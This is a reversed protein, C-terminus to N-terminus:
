DTERINGRALSAFIGVFCLATFIMFTIQASKLLADYYAPTIEVQGIFINFMLMAIGMSLMIGIQRSTALVASAVGYWQKSSSSMIANTNPSVFIGFGSGLILLAIFLYLISTQQGIFILLGLGVTTIAMGMSALKRPEIRDSLRGAIPSFLFQMAPSAVLILGAIGPSLGKNYQLYLSLLFTVAYTAAYSIFSAVNSFVFAQNNKFMSLRLLPIQVHNEWAVFIFIGIGGLALLWIGLLDPLSALGYILAVLFAIFILSGGYDFSERKTEAWKSRFRWLVVVAILLSSIFGVLFISRWGSQDTLLGGILPGLSVGLYTAAANIGLARGRGGPPYVSTLIAMSTVVIMSAGIGQVVRSAILLSSSTAIACLLSGLSFIIMGPIFIKRRGYIDALRGFPVLLSASALFYSTAVWGLTIADMGLEDGIKPLAINVGSVMFPVLFAVFTTIILVLIRSIGPMKENQM